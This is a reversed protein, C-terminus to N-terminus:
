LFHITWCTETRPSSVNQNCQALCVFLVCVIFLTLCLFYCVDQPLTGVHPPPLSLCFKCYSLSLSFFFLLLPRFVSILRFVSVFPLDALFLFLTFLSDSFSTVPFLAFWDAMVRQWLWQSIVAAELVAQPTHTQHTCQNAEFRQSNCRSTDM